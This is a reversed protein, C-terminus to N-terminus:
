KYRGNREWSLSSRILFCISSDEPIPRRTTEYFNVSIESTSVSMALTESLHVSTESTNVADMTMMVAVMIISAILVEFVDTL